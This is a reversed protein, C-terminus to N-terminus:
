LEPNDLIEEIIKGLKESISKRRKPTMKSIEDISFTSEDKSKRNIKQDRGSPRQDLTLIPLAREAQISEDEFWINEYSINENLGMIASTNILFESKKPRFKKWLYNEARWNPLNEQVYPFVAIVIEELELAARRSKLLEIIAESIGEADSYVLPTYVTNVPGSPSSLQDTLARNIWADRARMAPSELFDFPHPMGGGAEGHHVDIEPADWIQVKM